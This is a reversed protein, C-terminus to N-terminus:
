LLNATKVLCAHKYTMNAKQISILNLVIDIIFRKVISDAIAVVKISAFSLQLHTLIAVNEVLITNVNTM